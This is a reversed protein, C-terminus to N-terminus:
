YPRRVETESEEPGDVDSEDPVSEEDPDPEVPEKDGREEALDDLMRGIEVAKQISADWVFRLIPTTHLTLRPGLTRQIFGRAHGLLGMAARKETDGGLASVHVTAYALDRSLEVKTVTIFNSRPDSLEYLIIQSLEKQIQKSLREGRFQRPRPV